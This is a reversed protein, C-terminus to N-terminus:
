DNYGTGNVNHRLMWQENVKVWLHPSRFRDTLEHRFYDSSMGLFNMVDDFYREPFEGDFRAVLAKGEDRTIHGNRIEQSADETCRGFGFKIFYCYYNLDDIKDDLSLYKSYTGETRFPRAQFNSHKVAYYYSEQPLWKLYYGLYQVEVKGKEYEERHAPLFPTLENLSLGHRERLEHITVGGLVIDDLNDYTHFASDQLSSATEAIPNGFEAEHEGYFVLPIGFKLALKPALQKQGLIFTQFPHFLNEVSLRTLTRMARGNQNFSINDFGGIEIWNRFNRYGYDTYMIPPWTVTLPNMGYKYKLIHSAYVSDKGGSGPVICDYSGDARRHKALLELLQEERVKWDISEKKEAFRCADCVGEEDFVLTVKKSGKTHSFEKTSSPRQNSYCCKTCFKVDYPLGYYAEFQKRKPTM